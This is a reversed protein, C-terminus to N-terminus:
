LAIKGQLRFSYTEGFRRYIDTSRRPMVDRLVTIKMTVATVLRTKGYLHYPALKESVDTFLQSCPMVIWFVTIKM